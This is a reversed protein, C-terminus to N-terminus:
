GEGVGHWPPNAGTQRRMEAHINGVHHQVHRIQSLVLDARTFWQGRIEMTEMPDVTELKRLYERAKALVRRAFPALFEQTWVSEVGPVMDAQDRHFEPLQVTPRPWHLWISLGLLVHYVQQWIAPRDAHTQGWADAPCTRLIEELMSLTPEAQRGLIQGLTLNPPETKMSEGTREGDDVRAVPYSIPGFAATVRALNLDLSDRIQTM